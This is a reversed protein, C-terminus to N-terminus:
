EEEDSTPEADDPFPDIREGRIKSLAHKQSQVGQKELIQQQLKRAEEQQATTLKSVASYGHPPFPRETGLYRNAHSKAHKLNTLRVAGFTAEVIKPNALLFEREEATLSSLATGIVELKDALTSPMERGKSKSGSQMTAEGKRLPFM